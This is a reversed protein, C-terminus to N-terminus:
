GKAAYLLGRKPAVDDETEIGLNEIQIEIRTTPDGEERENMSASTIRGIFRGVVVSGVQGIAASPDLGMKELEKDTLCIQLSYPYKPKDGPIPMLYDYQEEDSLEMSAMQIIQAM